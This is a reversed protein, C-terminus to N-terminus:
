RAAAGAAGTVRATALFPQPVEPTSITLTTAAQKSTDVPQVNIVWEGSKQRETKVTFDPSSSAVNLKSVNVGDATKVTIQKAKAPQGQEWFIFTPQLTLAQQINASLVLNVMPQEPHDTQVSVVKQQMGTRGGITFTATLEGSEGPAVDKKKLEPVTCGCTSKVNTIRVPTTGKNEYRFTAVAEKDGPKPALKAETKDWTLQAQASAAVALFAGAALAKFTRTM